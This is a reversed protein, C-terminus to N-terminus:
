KGPILHQLEALIRAEQERALLVFQRRDEDVKRQMRLGHAVNAFVGVFPMLMALILAAKGWEGTLLITEVIM